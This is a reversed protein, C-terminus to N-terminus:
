WVVEDFSFVPGDKCCLRFRGDPHPVACGLCAGYGCGMETELAAQGPVSYQEGLQAVRAM